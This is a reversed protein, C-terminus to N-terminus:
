RKAHVPDIPNFVVGVSVAVLVRFTLNNLLRKM